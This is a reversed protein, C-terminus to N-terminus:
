PPGNYPRRTLAPLPAPPPRSILSLAFFTALLAATQMNIQICDTLGALLLGVLGFLPAGDWGGWREGLPPAPGAAGTLVVLVATGALALGVLGLTAAIHLPACHAHAHNHSLPKPHRRPCAARWPRTM